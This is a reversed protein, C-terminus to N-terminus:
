RIKIPCSISNLRCRLPLSIPSRFVQSAWTWWIIVFFGVYKATDSGSVVDHAEDYASLAATFFLDSFGDEWDMKTWFLKEADEEYTQEDGKEKDVEEMNNATSYELMGGEDQSRANWAVTSHAKDNRSETTRLASSKGSKEVPADNKVLDSVEESQLPDTLWPYIM